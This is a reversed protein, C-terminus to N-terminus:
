PKVEKEMKEAHNGNFDAKNEGIADVTWCLPHADHLNYVMIRLILPKQKTAEKM